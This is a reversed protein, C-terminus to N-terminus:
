SELHQANAVINYTFWGDGTRFMEPRAISTAHRDAVVHFESDPADDVNGSANGHAVTSVHLAPQPAKGRNM